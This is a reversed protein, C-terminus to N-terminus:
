IEQWKMLIIRRRDDSLDCSLQEHTITFVDHILLSRTRLSVEIMLRNRKTWWRILQKSSTHHTLFADIQDHNDRIRTQQCSLCCENLCMEKEIERNFVWRVSRSHEAFRIEHNSRYRIWIFRKAKVFFIRSRNENSSLEQLDERNEDIRTRRLSMEVIVRELVRSEESLCFIRLRCRTCIIRM